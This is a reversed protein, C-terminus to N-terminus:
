PSTRWSVDSRSMPLRINVGERVDGGHVIVNQFM